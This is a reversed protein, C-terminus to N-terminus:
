GQVAAMTSELIKVAVGVKGDRREIRVIEGACKMTMRGAPTELEVAFSV